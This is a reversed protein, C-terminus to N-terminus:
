REGARGRPADPAARSAGIAARLAETVREVDVGYRQFLEPGPASAGYRDVGIATGGSGIWREWGLTVGAEVSVRAVVEPPLVEDRRAPEQEAFTEWCPMSVVRVRLGEAGLRERAEVALQVESGSAIAIADPVGGEEDALVYAGRAVGEPARERSGALVPLGQRSLVLATPGDRRRLAELWAAATECADAPRLVRLGPVARLSMLHEVPQHTPGDEGVGISDHTWVYIAPLGGMAALRVPPRMYDSFVLFTGVFPRLGGHGLIGNAIAGMAHERVGFCVNRGEGSRGDFRASGALATRTSSSLDADGSLLEPLRDALAGLVAGSAARTAVKEGPEWEPLGLELDAPLEGAQRRRWEEALEPHAAAWADLRERWRARHEAGRARADLQRAAEEPVHFRAGAEWGLAEKVLRSEEEGLPSGHAASRGAKNPSGFGITTRVRILSPRGEEALASEIAGEIAALDTDGEAVELVQWGLARFRAAVDEGDFCLSTSGDLSIGNADYLWILRGLGLHGALSAAEAAVGEMLDGDSVLAFTRHGVIEHGPRNFRHALAREAMAMGVSNAAGQGLPGTTAEVGPVAGVEPHGPTRSGWTRFRRLEDLPLDYGTLHLLAYLLASGHGASLVFRDRDPWSPDAPDHRLFRQWLVYAMPAAGLPLGPHGSRAEDIADIALTRLTNVCLLDVSPQVLTM